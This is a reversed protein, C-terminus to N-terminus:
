FWYVLTRIFASALFLAFSSVSSSMFVFILNFLHYHLVGIKEWLKFLVIIVQINFNKHFSIVFSFFTLSSVSSSMFVSILNFLHYHLIRIKKRYIIFVIIDNAVFYLSMYTRQALTVSRSTYLSSLFFIFPLDFTCLRPKSQVSPPPLPPPRPPPPPPSVPTVPYTNM